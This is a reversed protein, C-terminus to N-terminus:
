KNNFKPSNLGHELWTHMYHHKGLGFVARSGAVAPVAFASIPFIISCALTAFYATNMALELSDWTIKRGMLTKMDELALNATTLDTPNKKLHKKLQKMLNCVKVDTRRELVNWKRCKLIKIEYKIKEKFAKDSAETKLNAFEAELCAREEGTVGIKAKLYGRFDDLSSESLIKPLENLQISCCIIDYLGKFAAIGVLTLTLPMAIMSFFLIEPIAGFAALAEVTAGICDLIELPTTALNLLSFFTGESDKTKIHEILSEFSSPISKLSFLCSVLALIGLKSIVPSLKSHLEGCAETIITLVHQALTNAEEAYRWFIEEIFELAAFATAQAKQWFSEKERTFSDTEALPPILEIFNSAPTEGPGSFQISM